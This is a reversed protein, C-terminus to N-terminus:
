KLHTSPLYCTVHCHFGDMCFHTVTIPFIFSITTFCLLASLGNLLFKIINRQLSWDIYFSHFLMQDELIVLIFIFYVYLVHAQIINRTFPYQRFIQSLYLLHCPILSPPIVSLSVLKLHWPFLFIFTSYDTCEL